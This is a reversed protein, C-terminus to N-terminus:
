AQKKKSTKATGVKKKKLKTANLAPPINQRAKPYADTFV